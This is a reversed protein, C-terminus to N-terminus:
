SLYIKAKFPQTINSLPIRFTGNVSYKDPIYLDDVASGIVTNLLYVLM